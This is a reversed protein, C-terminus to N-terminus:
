ERYRALMQAFFGSDDLKRIFSSDLRSATNIDALKPNQMAMLRQRAAQYIGV